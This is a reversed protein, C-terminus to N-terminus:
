GRGQPGQRRRQAANAGAMSAAVEAAKNKLGEQAQAIAKIDQSSQAGAGARRARADIKWTAAM